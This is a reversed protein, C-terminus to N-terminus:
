YNSAYYKPADGFVSASYIWVCIINQMINETVFFNSAYFIWVCIINQMSIIEQMINETVFFDSMYGDCFYECV